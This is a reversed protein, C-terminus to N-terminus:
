LNFSGSAKHYRCERLEKVGVEVEQHSIRTLPLTAAAASQSSRPIKSAIRGMCEDDIKINSLDGSQNAGVIDNIMQQQEATLPPSQPTSGSYALELLGVLVIGKEHVSFWPVPGIFYPTCGLDIPFRQCYRFYLGFQGTGESENTDILVVKFANGFPHRGTPEEGNNVAGLAGEGGRVMQGGETNGGKIWQAGHLRVPDGAIGLSPPSALELNSCGREQGCQYNFGVQYSGTISHHTPTQRHEMYGYTVDHIAVVGFGGPPANPFNAFSVRSLGPVQDIFTNQWGEYQDLSSRDLEPIDTFSYQDLSADSLSIQGLNEDAAISGISLDGYDELRADQFIASTSTDGTGSSIAQNNLNKFVAEQLPKVSSLKRNSLGPVAQVLSSISQQGLLSFNSLAVNNLDLGTLGAIDALSFRELGFAEQFDGLQTIHDIGTGAQWSRSPNFGLQETASAPLQLTGAEGVAPLSSFSINGWDPVPAGNYSTSAIYSTTPISEDWAEQAAAPKAGLFPALALFYVSLLLALLVYIPFRSLKKM